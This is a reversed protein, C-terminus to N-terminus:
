LGPMSVWVLVIVGSPLRTSTRSPCRGCSGHPYFPNDAVEIEPLDDQDRQEAAIVCAPDADRDSAPQQWDTGAWVVSGTAGCLAKGDEVAHRRGQPSWRRGAGVPTSFKDESGLELHAM